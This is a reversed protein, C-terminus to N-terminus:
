SGRELSVRIKNTIKGYAREVKKNFVMNRNNIYTINSEQHPRRRQFKKRKAIQQNLENVMNDMNDEDIEEDDNQAYDLSNVDFLQKTDKIFGSNKNIKAIRKNYATYLTDDNFVNWGFAAETKRKKKQQINQAYEASEYLISLNPDRFTEAMERKRKKTKTEYKKRNERSIEYDTKNLKEHEEIIAKKNLKRAENRKMRLEWGM